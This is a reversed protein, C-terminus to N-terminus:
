ETEGLMDEIYVMKVLVQGAIAIPYALAVGLVGVLVGLILQTVFALVPPMSTAREQIAPTLLYSEITQAVSYVLLVYLLMTPSQSLAVLGAPIVALISGIIPVFSLLGTIIGLTLAFPIDLLMLTIGTLTGILVMSFLQGILWWRLAHGISHLIEHVRQHRQRPFLKIIGNIYKEPQFTIYLGTFLVVFIGTVLGFIGSFISSIRSLINTTSPIMQQVSPLQGSMQNIWAYQDLSERVQRLMTPLINALQEIQIVIVPAFLWWTAVVIGIISVLVTAISWNKGLHTYHSLWDSLLHLFLALLVGAFVLLFVQAVYWIFFLLLAVILFTRISYFISRVSRDGSDEPRMPRRQPIELKMKGM